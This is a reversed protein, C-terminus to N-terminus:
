ANRLAVPGGTAAAVFVHPRWSQDWSERIVEAAARRSTSREAEPPM